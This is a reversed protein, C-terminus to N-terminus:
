VVVMYHVLVQSERKGEQIDLIKGKCWIYETDLIDIEQGINFQQIKRQINWEENEKRRNYYTQATPHHPNNRMKKDIM